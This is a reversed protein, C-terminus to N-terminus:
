EVTVTLGKKVINRRGNPNQPNDRLQARCTPSCNKGEPEGQMACDVEPEGARDWPWTYRSTSCPFGRCM